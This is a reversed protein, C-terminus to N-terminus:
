CVRGKEQTDKRVEILLAGSGTVDSWTGDFKDDPHSKLGDLTALMHRLLREATYHDEATIEAKLYLHEDPKM